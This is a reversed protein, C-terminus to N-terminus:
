DWNLPPYPVPKLTESGVIRSVALAILTPRNEVRFEGNPYRLEDFWVSCGKPTRIATTYPLKNLQKGTLHRVVNINGMLGMTNVWCNMHM